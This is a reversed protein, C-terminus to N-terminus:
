ALRALDHMTMGFERPLQVGKKFLRRSIKARDKALRPETDLVRTGAWRDGYRRLLPDYFPIIADLLQFVCIFQSLWRIIGQGFTLPTEGDKTQVVRLGTARKGLGAGGFLADRFFLVAINIVTLIGNLLLAAQQDGAMGSAGFAFGLAINPIYILLLSDLILAGFRRNHMGTQCRKCLFFQKKLPKARCKECYPAHCRVCVLVAPRKHWACPISDAALALQDRWRRPWAEALRDGVGLAKGALGAGADLVPDSLDRDGGGAMDPHEALAMQDAVPFAEPQTCHRVLTNKSITGEVLFRGITKRSVPGYIEEDASEIYWGIEFPDLTTPELGEHTVGGTAM